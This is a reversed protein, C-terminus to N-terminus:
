RHSFALFIFVLGLLPLLYVFWYIWYSSRTMWIKVGYAVLALGVLPGWWYRSLSAFGGIFVCVGTVMYCLANFGRGLTLRSTPRPISVSPLVPFTPSPLSQPPASDSVPAYSAATPAPNATASPAAPTAWPHPSLSAVPEAAAPDNLQAHLVDRQVTVQSQEASVLSPSVSTATPSAVPTGCRPCAVRESFSHACNACTTM